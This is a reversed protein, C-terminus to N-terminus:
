YSRPLLEVLLLALAFAFVRTFVLVAGFAKLRLFCM